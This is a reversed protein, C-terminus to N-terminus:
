SSNFEIRPRQPQVRVVLRVPASTLADQTTFESATVQCEWEGDDFELVAARVLLSCDGADRSGAWEYKRAYMGVPKNDKQWSCTGRKNFVKCVLLADEGPNVETYRPQEDFRQLAMGKGRAQERM